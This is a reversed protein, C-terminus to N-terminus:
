VSASDYQTLAIHTSKCIIAHPLQPPPLAEIQTLWCFSRSEEERPVYSLKPLNKTWINLSSFAQSFRLWILLSILSPDALDQPRDFPWIFVCELTSIDGAHSLASKSVIPWLSYPCSRSLCISLLWKDLAGGWCACVQCKYSLEDLDLSLKEFIYRQHPSKVRCIVKEIMVHYGFQLGKGVFMLWM